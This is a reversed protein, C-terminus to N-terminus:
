FRAAGRISGSSVVQDQNAPPRIRFVTLTEHPKSVLELWSPTAGKRLRDGFSGKDAIMPYAPCDVLYQAGSRRVLGEAAAPAANFANHVELIAGAMRHYPAAIPSDKTYILMFPGLDVHSLVVGPPQDALTRYAAANFCVQYAFPKGGKPLPAVFDVVAVAAAGIGPSILLAAIMSPVMRDGVYREAWRSLAAGLIPTGIWLVYDQMRWSTFGVIAAVTMAAVAVIVGTRPRPWERFLLYAASALVMLNTMIADIAPGREQRFMAPLSQVEQIRDFWFPRVAPNMAAFPGHICMPDFALYAGAAALGTLGLMSLRAWAPARGAFLATLCLGVGAVVLGAVLNLALADCFSFGWRWPPTQILFFVTTAIALSGGYAATPSAEDRDRALALGYSAGILAQVVLAELGVAMGLAAAVGGVIAWATRRTPALSCALAVMAMVIQIDHHDVRGPTFQRYLSINVLLLPATLFVASRGGLNRAVVLACGLAPFVWMLPWIIRTTLDAAAPTMFVRFLSMMGALGGDLLRSWHLVIGQPPQLRSISQDYWGRGSLLDRVLFLRTADDTDGPRATLGYKWALMAAVAVGLMLTLIILRSPRGLDPSTSLRM